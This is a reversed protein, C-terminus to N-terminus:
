ILPWGALLERKGGFAEWDLGWLERWKVYDSGAKHPKEQRLRSGKISGPCRNQFIVVLGVQLTLM